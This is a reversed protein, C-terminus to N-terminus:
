YREPSDFGSLVSNKLDKELKISDYINNITRQIGFHPSCLCQLLKFPRTNSNGIKIKKGEKYFKFYGVGNEIITFPKINDLNDNLGDSKVEEKTEIKLGEKEKLVNLLGQRYEQYKENFDKPFQIILLTGM